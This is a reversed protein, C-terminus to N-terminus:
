SNSTPLIFYFVSGAGEKSEVGITGSHREIIGASIYLGLGMGSVQETQENEVRFFRDFVKKQLEVPIGVGQDCVSLKVGEKVVETQVVIDGGDPSYKVANMIFNNLVQGIREKDATIPKIYAKQFIFQHGKSLNQLEEIREAVLSNLNFTTLNLTLKGEVIKTTDLLDRILNSLRDVQNNLKQMLATSEKENAKEFRDQLIQAYGKISTVPTKLEHSAIGIFEDKQQELNKRETIDYMVGVMRIAHGKEDKEITRGYGSVWRIEKNDARVIRFEAKFIGGEQVATKLALDVTEAEDKYVFSLFYGANKIEEGPQLGLMIYHQKNWKVVDTKIDWDWVGMEASELTIRLREESERLAEQAQMTETLERVIKVFGLLKGANDHLPRVTGSCYVWTGGKRLHWRENEAFGKEKAKAAEKEPAGKERAEPVYLIDGSQGIMEQESYGFMGEAGKNWTGVRRQTDITFIAYDKASAFVLRFREESRRLAEETEKHSTIDFFTIVVGNIRDEDTRYPLVRMMYVRGDTTQVEKEVPQLKELVSEADEVLNDYALRGTIDSLPRGYDAPILNFLQRSAPTFFAVRFSRDLFVTAIDVSNILNHLNNSAITTEEVKVKLEQNVTRLEENISQLEEKSTELEEAASRLEENMAQLEENAAKLEEAHFEHQENSARLQAKLRILEEELQRAVPEDSSLLVDINEEEDTVREFLVLIFGRAVDTIQLVPRVHISISETHEDVTVKLGRAEVATNRQVAQYLASRLELRLEQRILKLLNQSPEGGGIQLYRGARESLHVIDYEENVIVSPPAYQELLRQHLDGFTIRETKVPPQDSLTVPKHPPQLPFSPVSDPVPYTRAATIQRKQFIHNERNFVAYLDSAGDASESSGLFLFGGPKLAFHFTEMVREQATSNLYILVNRCSVMDLHSFPPDKIFNHNAFMVMERIERKIRYDEGERTFFRRLREPSVDAADNISYLGERAQNIAAEDIDTAFIQVKPADILNLTQEACLMALSYAEEGTACGAVWIRIQSEAGKSKIISPLVETEITDFAKRDRFFNTVSILLDKLLATTEEPNQQIYAAYAHLDPLHKVNIRREIRRLLTPRKYNTFDHGTRVRLQTFIERLAYQQDEPRKEPEVPIHVLGLSQKYTIISKPIEAVPLVADVLETAIANRPMENFEAERPNQVFTAGGLEKIRKLGMSGNAGTGSLIVCAARPGHSNALTRFFIDVPARRDEIQTNPSVAISGDVMMLHQSPPIVYVEDARVRTKETVQTVPMLTVSQLIETLKSDYSPSLHLIVVYAIGTNDPVNQFFEKLAQVGGASAGIGVIILDDPAPRDQIYKDAGPQQSTNSTM